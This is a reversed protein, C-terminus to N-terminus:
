GIIRVEIIERGKGKCCSEDSAARTSESVSSFSTVIMMNVRHIL